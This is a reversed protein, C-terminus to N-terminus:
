FKYTLGGSFHVLRKQQTFTQVPNQQNRKDSATYNLKFSTYETQATIALKKTFYFHLGAGTKHVGTTKKNLTSKYFAEQVTNIKVAAETAQLWGIGTAAQVFFKVPGLPFCIEPGVTFFTNRVNGGSFSLVVGAPLGPLSERPNVDGPQQNMIGGNVVLGIRGKHWGLRLQANSYNQGFFATDNKEPQTSIGPGYSVGVRVQATASFAICCLILMLMKNMAHTKASTGATLNIM